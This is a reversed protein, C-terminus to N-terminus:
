WLNESYLIHTIQKIQGAYFALKAAELRDVFRNKSTLFGQEKEYKIYSRDKCLAYATSFCNGHRMGCVVYGSKINVPMHAHQEGDDFWIASCLIHETSSMCM